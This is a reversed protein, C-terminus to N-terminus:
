RVLDCQLFLSYKWSYSDYVYLRLQKINRTEYIKAVLPKPNNASLQIMAGVVAKKDDENVFDLKAVEEVSEIRRTM